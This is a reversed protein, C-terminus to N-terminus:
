DFGDDQGDPHHTASGDQRIKDRHKIDKRREDYAGKAYACGLAVAITVIGYFILVETLWAM